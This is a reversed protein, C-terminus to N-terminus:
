MPSFSELETLNTLNTKEQVSFQMQHEATTYLVIEESVDDWQMM